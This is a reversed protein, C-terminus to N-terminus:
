ITNGRFRHVRWYTFKFDGDYATVWLKDGEDWWVAKLRFGSEHLLDIPTGDRPVTDFPQWSYKGTKAM